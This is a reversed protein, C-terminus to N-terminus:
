DTGGDPSPWRLVRKVREAYLGSPYATLFAVARDAARREQGLEVLARIALYEREQYFTGSPFRRHGEEALAVVQQLPSARLLKIHALEEGASAGHQGADSATLAESDEVSPPSPDRRDAASAPSLPLAPAASRAMPAHSPDVAPEPARPSTPSSIGPRAEGTPAASGAFLPAEPVPDAGLGGTALGVVFVAVVGLGAGVGAAGLLGNGTGAAGMGGAGGGGPVKPAPAAHLAARLRAAGAELDLGKLPATDARSMLECLPLSAQIM